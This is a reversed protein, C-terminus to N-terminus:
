VRWGLKMANYKKNDIPFNSFSHQISADFYKYDSLIEIDKGDVADIGSQWTEADRLARCIKYGKDQSGEGTLYIRIYTRDSYFVEAVYLENEPMNPAIRSKYETYFVPTVPVKPFIGARAVSYALFISLIIIVIVGDM